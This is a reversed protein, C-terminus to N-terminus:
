HKVDIALRTPKRLELVRYKNPSSLGAVWEVEAEFDCTARLEKLLKYNPATERQQVTPEGTDDHANAPSFRIALRAQGTLPVVAGSGCQGAAKEIYEIRYGPLKDGAFEFVIRDFAPHQGTRVATLLVTGGTEYKKETVATTGAFSTRADSSEDAPPTPSVIIKNRSAQTGQADTGQGVEALPAAATDNAAPRSCSLVVSFLLFFISPKFSKM